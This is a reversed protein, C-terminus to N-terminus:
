LLNEKFFIDFPMEIQPHANEELVLKKYLQQMV